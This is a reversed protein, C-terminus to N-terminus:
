LSPMKRECAAFLQIYHSRKFNEPFFPMQVLQLNVSRWKFLELVPRKLMTCQKEFM